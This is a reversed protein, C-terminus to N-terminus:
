PQQTAARCWYDRQLVAQAHLALLHVNGPDFQLDAELQAVQIQFLGCLGSASMQSQQQISQQVAGLTQATDQALQVFESKAPWPREFGFAAGIGITAAIAAPIGAYRVWDRLM